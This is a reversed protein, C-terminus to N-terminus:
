DCEGQMPPPPGAPPPPRPRPPAAGPAQGQQQGGQQQAQQGGQQKGAAEEAQQAQEAAKIVEPPVYRLQREGHAYNCQMDTYPCKGALWRCCCPQTTTPPAPRTPRAATGCRMRRHLGSNGVFM